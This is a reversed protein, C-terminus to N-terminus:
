FRREPLYKGTDPVPISRRVLLIRKGDDEVVRWDPQLKLIQVIGLETPLLAADFRYKAMTEAWDWRGAALHLYQDGLEPGYFDSRGDVFVKQQPNTYILYDGWQDSTLVRSGWILSGYQHVMRTPFIQEPFDQPWPIPLFPVSLALVV